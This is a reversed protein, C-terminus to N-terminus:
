FTLFPVIMHDLLKVEPKKDISIFASVRFYVPVGMNKAASFMSAVWTDMSPHIPLSFTIYVCLLINIM